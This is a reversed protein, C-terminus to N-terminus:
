FKLVVYNSLCWISDSSITNGFIMNSFWVLPKRKIERETLNSPANKRVKLVMTFTSGPQDALKAHLHLTSFEHKNLECSGKSNKSTSSFEQFNTSTCWSHRLCAQSCTMLSSSEIKKVPQSAFRKNQRTIFYASRSNEEMAFSTAAFYCFILSWIMKKELAKVETWCLTWGRPKPGTLFYQPM